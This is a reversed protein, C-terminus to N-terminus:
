SSARARHIRIVRVMQSYATWCLRGALEDRRVLFAETARSGIASYFCGWTFPPLSAVGIESDPGIRYALEVMRLWQLSRAVRSAEM